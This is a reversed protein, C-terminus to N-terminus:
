YSVPPGYRYESIDNQLEILNDELSESSRLHNLMYDVFDVSFEQINLWMKDPLEYIMEIINSCLRNQKVNVELIKSLFYTLVSIEVYWNESNEISLLLSKDEDEPKWQNTKSMIFKALEDRNLCHHM